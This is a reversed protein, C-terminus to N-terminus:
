RAGSSIAKELLALLEDPRDTKIAVDLVKTKAKLASRQGTEPLRVWDKRTMILVAKDTKDQLLLDKADQESFMYHDPFEHKHVINAGLRQLSAFFKEPRAIGTVARVQTGELWNTGDIAVLETRFVEGTFDREIQGTAAHCAPGAIILADTRKLQFALPARLPGAPFVRKNGIGQAKDVVVLSLDKYLTPNQFGDDMLIIDAQMREIFRAGAPRDASVVVPAVKALLLPEDGVMEANDSVPDVLHPGKIQGGYGRTLFVPRHGNGILLEALALALPTKGGGGVTFNGICIVPLKARVPTTLVFRLKVGVGYLAGLPALL